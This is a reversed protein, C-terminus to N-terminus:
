EGVGSLVARAPMGPAVGQLAATVLTDNNSLGGSVIAHNNEVRAINVKRYELKGKNVLYVFNSEYIARRPLALADNIIKGPIRAELFIGNYLNDGPKKNIKLFAQLSQTETNITEGIRKISATWQGEIEKSTIIVPKSKDIWKLDQTPIPVELEMEDLNIIQGLRTGARATSGIRLDASEISGNFPARFYHKELRIELNKVAFYFKYVNFRSLFLKIKNNSPEPLEDLPKDFTCSDFYDQWKNFEEPFDIKIEPLVTALSTLFDSKASNIDLTIQRTDIQVLLDGKKFSTGPKFAVDGSELIGAVESLLVVPQASILRGYGVIESQIDNLKVVKSEVFKIRPTAKKRPADESFSFLFQMLFYGAILIIVPVYYKPKIFSKM